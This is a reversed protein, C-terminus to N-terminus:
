TKIDMEGRRAERRKKGRIGTGNQNRFPLPITSVNRTMKVGMM